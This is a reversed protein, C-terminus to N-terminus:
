ARKKRCTRARLSKACGSRHARLEQCLSAYTRTKEEMKCRIRWLTQLSAKRSTWNQPCSQWITRWERYPLLKPLSAWFDAMFVHREEPSLVNWITKDALSAGALAEKGPFDKTPKGSLSQKSYPHNEAVSFLFEWGEFKSMSCSLAMRELYFRKVEEFPPDDAITLKQKRLKDNV